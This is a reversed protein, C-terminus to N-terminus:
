ESKAKIMMTVPVKKRRVRHALKTRLISYIHKKNKLISEQVDELRLWRRAAMKATGAQLMRAYSEVPTHHEGIVLLGHYGAYYTSDKGFREAVREAPTKLDEENEEEGGKKRKPVLSIYYATGPRSGVDDSWVGFHITGYGSMSEINEILTGSFHAPYEGPASSTFEEVIEGSEDIYAYKHGSFDAKETVSDKIDNVLLQGIYDLNEQIVNESHRIVDELRNALAEDIKSHRLYKHIDVIVDYVSDALRVNKM